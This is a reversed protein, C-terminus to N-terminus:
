NYFNNCVISRRWEPVFDEYIKVQQDQHLKQCLDCFAHRAMQYVGNEVTYHKKWWFYENYLADNADLLKLYEALAKPTYDMANIYSHPPAIASYNAAGYVIPVMNYNLINFFKETVYDKCDSNEFSLYFKYKLELM